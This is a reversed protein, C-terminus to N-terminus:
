KRVVRFPYEGLIEAGGTKSVGSLTLIYDGNKLTEAALRLVIGAKQRTFSTPSIGSDQWILEGEPRRLEARYTRYNNPEVKLTLHVFGTGAPILLRNSEGSDRVLGESLAFTITSKAPPAVPQSPQPSPQTPVQTQALNQNQPRSNEVPSVTKSQQALEKTRGFKHQMLWSGFLIALIVLATASAIVFPNLRRLFAFPRGWTLTAPMLPPVKLEVREDAASTHLLINAFKLRDRQAKSLLLRQEFRERDAASLQDLAYADILDDEDVCMQEFAEDGEFYQGEIQSIKEESLQGLFYQKARNEDEVKPM